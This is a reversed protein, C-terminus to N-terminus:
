RFPACEGPLAPIAGLGTITVRRDDVLEATLGPFADGAAELTVEDPPRPERIKIRIVDIAHTRAITMMWALARGKAPDFECAKDWIRVYTERLLEEALRRHRAIRLCVAFLRPASREYLAGFAAQDGAATRKLLEDLVADGLDKAVVTSDSAAM